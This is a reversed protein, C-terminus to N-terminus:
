ETIEAARRSFHLPPQNSGSGALGMRHWRCGLCEFFPDLLERRLETEKYAGSRYAEVNRDFRAVLDLLEAPASKKSPVSM